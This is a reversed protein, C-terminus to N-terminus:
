QARRPIIRHPESAKAAIPSPEPRHLTHQGGEYQLVLFRDTLVREM